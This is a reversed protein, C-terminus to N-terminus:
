NWEWGKAALNEGDIETNFVITMNNFAALKGTNSPGWIGLGRFMSKEPRGTAQSIGWSRITGVSGDRAMVVTKDEGYQKNESRMIAIFTGTETIEIGKMKSQMIYSTETKVGNPGEEIEIVRVGTIKGRGEYIQDGLM